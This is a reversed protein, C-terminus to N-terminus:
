CVDYQCAHLLAWELDAREESMTAEEPARFMGDESRTCGLKLLTEDSPPSPETFTNGSFTFDFRGSRVKNVAAAVAPEPVYTPICQRVPGPSRTPQPVTISMRRMAASDPLPLTPVSVPLTCAPSPYYIQGSTRAAQTQSIKLPSARSPSRIVHGYPVTSPAPSGSAAPLAVHPGLPAATQLQSQSMRLFAPPPRPSHMRPSAVSPVQGSSGPFQANPDIPANLLATNNLMSAGAQLPACYSAQAPSADIIDPSFPYPSLTTPGTPFGSSLSQMRPTRASPMPRSSRPFQADLDMMSDRRQPFNFMNYSTYQLSHPTSYRTFYV